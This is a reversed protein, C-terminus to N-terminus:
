KRGPKIKMTTGEIVEINGNDDIVVVDICDFTSAFIDQLLSNVGCKDEFTIEDHIEKLTLKKM